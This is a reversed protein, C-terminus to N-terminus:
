RWRTEDLDGCVAEDPLEHRCGFRRVPPSPPGGPTCTPQVSAEPFLARRRSINQLQERDVRGVSGAPGGPLPRRPPGAPGAGGAADREPRVRVGAAAPRVAAAAAGAAAAAAGRLAAAGRGRSQKSAM